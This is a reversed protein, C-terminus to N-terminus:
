IIGKNHYGQKSFKNEIILFDTFLFIGEIRICIVQMLKNENEKLFFLTIRMIILYSLLHKVNFKKLKTIKYTPELFILWVKKEANLNNNKKM